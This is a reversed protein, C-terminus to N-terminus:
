RHQQVCSAVVFPSLRRRCSCSPKASALDLCTSAAPFPPRRDHIFPAPVHAARRPPSCRRGCCAPFDVVLLSLARVPSPSLSSPLASLRGLTADIAGHSWRSGFDTRGVVHILLCRAVHVISTPRQQDVHTPPPPPVNASLVTVLCRSASSRLVLTSPISTRPLDWPPKALLQSSSSPSPCRNRSSSGFMQM